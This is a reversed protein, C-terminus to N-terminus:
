RSEGAGISFKGSVQTSPCDDCVALRRGRQLAAFRAPLKELDSVHRLESLPLGYGGTTFSCPAVRGREDIFWFAQGPGCDLIPWPQGAGTAHLRELYAPGGRIMLGRAAVRARLGPLRGRLWAVDQVTLAHDSYFEPRDRGGLANFTVEEVGWGALIECLAEFEGLTERMLVTNVRLRPGGGVAAKREALRRLGSELGAWLGARGRLRDHTAALGDISVTLEDFDEMLAAQVAPSNLRAGNTTVSLRLGYIQKFQRSLTLLPPWTLPEGGLWSVLITRGSQAAYDGLLRGARQLEPLDACARAPTLGRGYACFPCTLDCVETVRWVIVLTPANVRSIICYQKDLQHTKHASQRWVRKHVPPM